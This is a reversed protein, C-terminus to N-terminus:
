RIIKVQGRKIFFLNMPLENQRLVVTDAPYKVLFSRVALQNKVYLSIGRLFISQNYVTSIEGIIDTKYQGILRLFSDKTLVLFETDEKTTISASRGV